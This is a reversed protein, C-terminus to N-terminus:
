KETRGFKKTLYDAAWQNSQNTHCDTCVNPVQLKVSLDPRPIRFSHDRRGDIVMFNEEPMHCTVCRSAETDKAHFYHSPADYKNPMHCQACLSNGTAKLKLSHPDHCNSCTVGSLYMKSQLFSGYVYAEGNVQGDQHYVPETLLRVHMNDLLAEGAKAGFHSTQRRSHCNACTDIVKNPSISKKPKANGTNPDIIWDSHKYQKIAFDFGLNGVKKDNSKAWQVHSSGPGHCAECAVNIESWQTEYAETRPNYNKRLHTSHCDACM